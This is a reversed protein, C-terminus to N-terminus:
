CRNVPVASEAHSQAPIFSVCLSSSASTASGTSSRQIPNLARLYVPPVFFGCHVSAPAASYVTRRHGYFGPPCKLGAGHFLPLSPVCSSGGRPMTVFPSGSSVARPWPESPRLYDHLAYLLSSLSLAPAAFTSGSECAPPHHHREPVLKSTMKVREWGLGGLRRHRPQVAIQM